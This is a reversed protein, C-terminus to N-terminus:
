KKKGTALVFRRLEGITAVRPQDARCRRGLWTRSVVALKRDILNAESKMGDFHPRHHLLLDNM